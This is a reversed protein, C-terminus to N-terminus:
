GDYNVHSTVGKVASADVHSEALVYIAAVAAMALPENAFGASIFAALALLFKRSTFKSM